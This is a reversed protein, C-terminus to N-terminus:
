SLIEKCLKNIKTLNAETHVNLILTNLRTEVVEWANENNMDFFEEFETDATFDRFLFLGRGDLDVDLSADYLSSTWEYCVDGEESVWIMADNRKKM